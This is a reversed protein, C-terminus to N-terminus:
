RLRNELVYKIQNNDLVVKPHFFRCINNGDIVFKFNMQNTIIQNSRLYQFGVIFAKSSRPPINLPTCDIFATKEVHTELNLASTLKAPFWTSEVSEDQNEFYINTITSPRSSMNSILFCANLQNGANHVWRLYVKTKIHKEYYTNIASYLSLVFALSAVIVSIIEYLTLTLDEMSLFVFFFIVIEIIAITKDIIATM